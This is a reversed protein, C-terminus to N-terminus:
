DFPNTATQPSKKFRSHIALDDEEYWALGQDQDTVYSESRTSNYEHSKAAYENMGDGMSNNRSLSKVMGKSSSTKSLRRALNSRSFGEVKNGWIDDSSRQSFNDSQTEYSQSRGNEKSKISFRRMISSRSKNDADRSNFAGGSTLAFSESRCDSRADFDSAVSRGRSLSRGHNKIKGLISSATSKKGTDVTNADDLGSVSRSSKRFATLSASRIKSLGDRVISRSRGRRGGGKERSSRRSQRPTTVDSWEHLMANALDNVAAKESTDLDTVSRNHRKEANIQREAIRERMERRRNILAQASSIQLDSDLTGRRNRSRDRRETSRAPSIGGNHTNCTEDDTSEPAYGREKGRSHSRREVAPAQPTVSLGHPNLISRRSTSTAVTENGDDGGGGSDDDGYDDPTEGCFLSAAKVRERSRSLSRRARSRIEEAAGLIDAEGRKDRGRGIDHGVSGESAMRKEMGRSNVDDNYPLEVNKEHLLGGRRSLVRARAEAAAGLIAKTEERGGVVRRRRRKDESKSMQSMRSILDSAEDIMEGGVRITNATNGDRTSVGAKKRSRRLESLEKISLSRLDRNVGGGTVRRPPPPPHRKSSRVAISTDDKDTSRLTSESATNNEAALKKGLEKLSAVAQNNQRRDERTTSTRNSTTSTQKSKKKRRPPPPPAGADQHISNQKKPKHDRASGGDSSADSMTWSKNCEEEESLPSTTDTKLSSEGGKRRGSNNLGSPSITSSSASEASAMSCLPCDQLLVRWANNERRCLEIGPHRICRGNENMQDNMENTVAMINTNSTNFDASANFDSARTHNSSRRQSYKETSASANDDIQTYRRSRRGNSRSRLGHSTSTTRSQMMHGGSPPPPPQNTEMM